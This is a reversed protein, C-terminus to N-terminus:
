DNILAKVTATSYGARYGLEYLEGPDTIGKKDALTRFASLFDIDGRECLLSIMRRVEPLPYGKAVLRRLILSPGRLGRVERLILAELQREENLYGLRVCEAM